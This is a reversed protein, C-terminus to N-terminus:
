DAYVTVSLKYTVPNAAKPSVLLQITNPSGAVYVVQFSGVDGNIYLGSYENFQVESGLLVSALKVSQRINATNDTAIINFDVGSVGTVPLSYLPQNPVTNITFATLGSLTSVNNSGTSVTVSDAILSGALTLVSNGTDFTLNASGDFAGANNFQIQTTNGGPSSNGGGGGAAWSLNGLGDTTLVYGSTGGDIHINSVTGLSINASTNANFNGVVVLGNQIQVANANLSSITNDIFSLNGITTNSGLNTVGIKGVYRYGVVYLVKGSTLPAPITEGIFNLVGSQYNFYYQGTGGSGAAFIQTGTLTPNTVGPNDVWIQATYTAGFETPIWYTLGTKWTPYIGGIPVTTIDATTQVAAAGTYAQVIGSVAAATNPIQNSESWLTDGRILLPSPISENSPSKNTATDTKTVGFAQKYLLDVIQSQSVAM